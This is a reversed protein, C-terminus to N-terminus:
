GMVEGIWLCLAYIIAALAVMSAALAAVGVRGFWKWNIV